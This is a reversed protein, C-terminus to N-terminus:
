RRGTSLAAPAPPRPTRGAGAITVEHWAPGVHVRRLALKSRRELARSGFLGLALRDEARHAAAQLGSEALVRGCGGDGGSAGGFVLM